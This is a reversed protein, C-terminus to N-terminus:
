MQQFVYTPFRDAAMSAALLGAPTVGSTFRLLCSIMYAEVLHLYPQVWEPKSVWVLRWWFGFCPYWRGWLFSRHKVHVLLCHNAVFVWLTFSLNFRNNLVTFGVRLPYCVPFWNLPSYPFRVFLSLCLFCQSSQNSYFYGSMTQNVVTRTIQTSSM